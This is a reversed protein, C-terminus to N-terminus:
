NPEALEYEVVPVFNETGPDGRNVPVRLNGSRVIQRICLQKIMQRLQAGFQCSKEFSGIGLVDLRFRLTIRLRM